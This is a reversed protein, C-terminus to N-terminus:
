GAHHVGWAEVFADSIEGLTTRARVAAIILPMLAPRSVAPQAAAQKLDALAAATAKADRKARVARVRDVQERALKSFDPTPIVPPAEGDGFKNV